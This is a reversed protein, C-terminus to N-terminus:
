SHVNFTEDQRALVLTTGCTNSGTATEDSANGAGLLDCPLM